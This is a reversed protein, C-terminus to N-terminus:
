YVTLQGGKEDYSYHISDVKEYRLCRGDKVQIFKARAKMRNLTAAGYFNQGLENASYNSSMILCQGNRYASNIIKDYANVPIYDNFVKEEQGMDDLVIIDYNRSMALKWNDKVNFRNIEICRDGWGMYEAINM